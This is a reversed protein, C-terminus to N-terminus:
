HHTGKVSDAQSENRDPAKDLLHRRAKNKTLTTRADEVESPTRMDLEGHLRQNNWSWVRELTALEIRPM